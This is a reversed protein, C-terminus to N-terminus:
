IKNASFGYICIKLRAIMVPRVSVPAAFSLKV